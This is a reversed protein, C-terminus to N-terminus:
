PWLTSILAAAAPFILIEGSNGGSDGGSELALKLATGVRLRCFDKVAFRKSELKSPLTLKNAHSEASAKDESGNV